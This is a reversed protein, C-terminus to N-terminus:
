DFRYIFGTYRPEKFDEILKELITLFVGKSNILNLRLVEVPTPVDSVGNAYDVGFGLLALPIELEGALVVEPGATQSVFTAHSQLARIEAKSNFRPGNVHAYVADKLPDQSADILQQRLGDSFPEEFIFHGRDSADEESFISCIEGNPLRNDPFYLDAFVVPKALPLSADLVGCITTAVIARVDLKKLALLNARYNIMNPLLSHRSGHRAIFAIRRHSAHGVWVLTSGFSTEITKEEQDELGPFDYFGSGSIIALDIM